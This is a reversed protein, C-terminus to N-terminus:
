DIYKLVKNAILSDGTRSWHTDDYLYIDKLTDYQKLYKLANFYKYKKELKDFRSFFQPEELGQKDLIHDYYFSYKNPAFFVILDINNDNLLRSIENLNNNLQEFQLDEINSDKSSLDSFSYLLSNDKHSFKNDVLDAVRVNGFSKQKQVYFKFSNSLFKFPQSSLLNHHRLRSDEDTNHKFSEGLATRLSDIDHGINLSLENSLIFAKREVIQLVVYKISRKDFFDGQAMRRLTNMQNGSFRRDVHLLTNKKAIFNKYALSSKNQESFSDGITMIKYKDKIRSESFFTCYKKQEYYRFNNAYDWDTNPLYGVRILDGQNISYFLKTTILVIIIPSTILLIKLIFKKM